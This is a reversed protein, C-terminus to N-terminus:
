TVEGTWGDVPPRSDAEPDPPHHYFGVRNLLSSLTRRGERMTSRAETNVLLTSFFLLPGSGCVLACVVSVYTWMCRPICM